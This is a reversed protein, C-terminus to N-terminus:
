PFIKRFSSWKKLVNQLFHIKVMSFGFFFKSFKGFFHYFDRPCVALEAAVHMIDAAVCMIKVAVHAINAM